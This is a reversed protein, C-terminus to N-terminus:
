GEFALDTVLLTGADTQDFALDIRRVDHLDVGAFRSLPLTVTGILPGGFQEVPARLPSLNPNLAVSAVHGAGDVLRVSFAQQEAPLVFPPPDPTEGTVPDPEIVPLAPVPRGIRLTIRAFGSADRGGPLRESLVGSRDAWTVHYANARQYWNAMKIQCPRRSGLCRSVDLNAATVAGGLENRARRRAGDVDLRANSPARFSTVVDVGAVRRPAQLGPGGFRRSLLRSSRDSFSKVTASMFTGIVDSALGEQERRTLRGGPEAPETRCFSPPPPPEEIPGPVVPPEAAPGPDPQFTFEAPWERNFFNHNAGVAIMQYMPRTRQEFRGDDYYWLGQLDSVDGDCYSIISGFTIDPHPRLRRFDVPALVFVSRIRYPKSGERRSLTVVGEGGRSHGILGVRQLNLKGELETGFPNPGGDNAIALRRLTEEAVDARFEMGRLLNASEVDGSGPTYVDEAVAAANVDVSIVTFGRRALARALYGYGGYSEIEDDPPPCHWVGGGQTHRQECPQHRGHMILVVPQRSTSQRRSIVGTLAARTHITIGPAPHYDFGLVGADYRVPPSPVPGIVGATAAAPALLASALALAAVPNRM